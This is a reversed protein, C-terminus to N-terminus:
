EDDAFFGSAYVMDLTERMERVSSELSHIRIKLKENENTLDKIRQDRPVVSNETSNLTEKLVRNEEELEKIRRAAIALIRDYGNRDIM